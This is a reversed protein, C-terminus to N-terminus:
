NKKYLLVGADSGGPAGSGGLKFYSDAAKKYLYETPDSSSKTTSFYICDTGTQPNIVFTASSSQFGMYSNTVSTSAFLYQGAHDGGVKKITINDGTRTIVFEHAEAIDSALTITSGSKSVGTTSNITSYGGNNSNSANLIYTNTKDAIVYTGSVLNADGEILTYTPPAVSTVTLTYSAEGEQFDDNAAGYAKITFVGTGNITVAGTSSVTPYAIQAIETDACTVSYTVGDTKGLLTPADAFEYPLELGYVNVSVESESFALNRKKPQNDDLKFLELNSASSTSAQFYNSSSSYRFNYTDRKITLAGSSIAFTSRYGNETTSAVFNTSSNRLVFYYDSTGDAAPVVMSFKLDTGDQNTLVIECGEVDAADIQDDTITVNIANDVTQQFATKGSNLVPKFAKVTSGNRYVFVYTGDAVVDDASTVKSFMVKAPDSNVITITYSAKGKKFTSTAEATATIVATDGKKAGSAITVAGSSPNVTAVSTNSSAYTVETQNGDLSPVGKGEEWDKTFVDYVAESSSFSLDQATRGDDLKYICINAAYQSGSTSGSQQIGSFYNSSSWYLHYTADSTRAITAIGDSAISISVTHSTNKDEAGLASNGSAGPYLYKGNDGASEIFLYKGEEFTILCDDLDASSITNNVIEVDIANATSKTFNSGSSALIPKFAKNATEYVLIYQADEEIDDNSLVKTYVPVSPDSSTITITYSAKAARWSADQAATATIVAKDGKKVGEAITVAGTSADVTAVSEDSSSYTVDTKAGDLSPVGKGEEWAGAYVDYVADDASFSISQATRGDDLKYLCIGTSYQGSITANSSFYHSSVSWVFYNSGSNAKIQAIGDTDFAIGLKTAATSEASLTGSGGSTGSPYIYKGADVAKFYYGEELTLECAAFDSSTIKGNDITVDLASSADKVYTNGDSNLVPYFVKPDGDDADGELGEFVILYQAGIEIDSVSTVKNYVTEVVSTDKVEITYSASAGQYEDTAAVTVTVVDSGTKTFGTFTIVGTTADISFLEEDTHSYTVQDATEVGTLAPQTFTGGNRDFVIPDDDVDFAIERPKLTTFLAAAPTTNYEFAWGIETADYTLYFDRETDDSAVSHNWFKAGDYNWAMYKSPDADSAALAMTGNGDSERKLKKSSNTFTHTGYTAVESTANIAEAKWLLSAVVDNFITVTEDEAVEVAESAIGDATLKVAKGNAVIVYDVDNDIAKAKYFTTAPITNVVTLKYSASGAKHTDDAEATAKINVVGTAGTLTVTGDEAVTAVSENDSSYTVAGVAGYLVPSIFPTAESEYLDYELETVEDEDNKFVMEQELLEFKEATSMDLSVEKLIDKTFPVTAPTAYTKTLIHSDTRIEISKIKKNGPLTIVYVTFLSSKKRGGPYVMTLVKNSEDGSFQATCDDFNVDEYTTYGTLFDESTFKISEIKSGEVNFISFRTIAVPRIFNLNLRQDPMIWENYTTSCKGILFDAKPDITAESHPYQVSPVIFKLQNGDYEATSMVATYNYKPAAAKTLVGTPTLIIETDTFEAHFYAKQNNDETFIEVDSAKLIQTVEGEETTTEFIHVDDTDTFRWDPVFKLSLATKTATEPEVEVKFIVSHTKSEQKEPEAEVPRCSALGMVTLASILAFLLTKKM